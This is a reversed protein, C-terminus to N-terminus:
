RHLLKQAPATTWFIIKMTRSCLLQTMCSHKQDQLQSTRRKQKTPKRPAVQNNLQTQVQQLLSQITNLNPQQKKRHESAKIRQQDSTVRKKPQLTVAAYPPEERKQVKFFPNTSLHSQKFNEEYEKLWKENKLWRRHSIKENQTTQAKWMDSLINAAAPSGKEKFLTEMENDIRKVKEEQQTARM